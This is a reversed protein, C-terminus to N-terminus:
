YLACTSISISMSACSYLYLFVVSESDMRYRNIDVNGVRHGQRVTPVRQNPRASEFSVIDQIVMSSIRNKDTPYLISLRMRDSYCFLLLVRM